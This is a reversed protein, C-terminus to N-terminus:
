VLSFPFFRSVLLLCFRFIWMHLWWHFEYVFSFFWFNNCSVHCRSKQWFIWSFGIWFTCCMSPLSCHFLFLVFFLYKSLYIFYLSNVAFATTHKRFSRRKWLWKRVLLSINHSHLFYSCPLLTQTSFHQFLFSIHAFFWRFFCMLFEISFYCCESVNSFQVNFMSCRHVRHFFVFLFRIFAKRLRKYCAARAFLHASAM